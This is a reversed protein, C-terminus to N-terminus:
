KGGLLDGLAERAGTTRTFQEIVKGAVFRKDRDLLKKSEFEEAAKKKDFVMRGSVENLEGDENIFIKYTPELGNRIAKETEVDSLLVVEDLEIEARNTTKRVSDLLQEQQWIHNENGDVTDYYPIGAAVEPANRLVVENGTVKSKSYRRSVIEETREQALDVDGTMVYYDNFTSRYDNEIQAAYQPVAPLDPDSLDTFDFYNGMVQTIARSPLIPEKTDSLERKRQDYLEGSVPNFEVKLREEIDNAPLGQQKLRNYQKAETLKKDSLGSQALARWATESLEDVLESGYARINSDNSVLAGQIFSKADNPLVGTSKTLQALGQVGREDLNTILDALRPNEESGLPFPSDEVYMDAFGITNFIGNVEKKDGKDTPDYIKASSGVGGNVLKISNRAAAAKARREQEAKIAKRYGDVQKPNLDKNFEPDNIKSRVEGLNGSEFQKDLYAGKLEMAAAEQLERLESPRTYSEAGSLAEEIALNGLALNGTNRTNIIASDVSNQLGNIRQAQIEEAQVGIAAKALSSRLTNSKQELNRRAIANPADAVKDSYLTNYENMFSETIKNPDETENVVKDFLTQSELLLETGKQSVYADADRTEKRLKIEGIVDLQAGVESAVNVNQTLQSVGTNAISQDVRLGPIEIAM